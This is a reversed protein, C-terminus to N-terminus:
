EQLILEAKVAEKKDIIIEDDNVDYYLLINELPISLKIIWYHKNEPLKFVKLAFTGQYQSFTYARNEEATFSLWKRTGIFDKKYKGEGGRYIIISNHLSKEFHKIDIIKKSYNCEKMMYKLYYQLQGVLTYKKNKLLCDIKRSDNYNHWDCWKDNITNAEKNIKYYDITEWYTFKM